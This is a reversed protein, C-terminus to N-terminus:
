GAATQMPMEFKGSKGVFAHSPEQFGHLMCSLNQTAFRLYSRVVERPKCGSYTSLIALSSHDGVTSDNDKAWPCVRSDAVKFGHFEHRQAMLRSSLHEVNKLLSLLSAASPQLCRGHVTDHWSRIVKAYRRKNGQWLGNESFPFMVKVDGYRRRYIIEHESISLAAQCINIAHM